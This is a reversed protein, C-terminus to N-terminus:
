STLPVSEGNRSVDFMFSPELTIASMATCHKAPFQARPILRTARWLPPPTPIPLDILPPNPITHSPDSLTSSIRFFAISQSTVDPRMALLTGSADFLRFPSAPMRGGADAVAMVELTPTEIPAYGAEAFLDQLRRVLAERRQAEDPLIDRFGQPTSYIM